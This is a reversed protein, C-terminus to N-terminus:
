FKGSTSASSWEADQKSEQKLFAAKVFLYISSPLFCDNTAHVLGVSHGTETVKQTLLRLDAVEWSPLSSGVSALVAEGLGVLTLPQFNM